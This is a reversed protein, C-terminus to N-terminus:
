LNPDPYRAQVHAVLHRVQDAPGPDNEEALDLALRALEPWSIWGVREALLEGVTRGEHLEIRGAVELEAPLDDSGPPAVVVLGAERAGPLSGDLAAMAAARLHEETPHPLLTCALVVYAEPGDLVVDSVDSFDLGAAWPGVSAGAWELPSLPNGAGVAVELLSPVWADADWLSLTRFTNWALRDPRTPDEVRSAAAGALLPSASDALWDGEMDVPAETVHQDM